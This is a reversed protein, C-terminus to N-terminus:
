AIYLMTFHGDLDLISNKAARTRSDEIIAPQPGGGTVVVGPKVVIGPVVDLKGGVVAGVVVVTGGAVVLGGVSVTGGVVVGNGRNVTLTAFLAPTPM